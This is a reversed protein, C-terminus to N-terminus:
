KTCVVCTLEKGAVYPRCPLSGCHGEVVYLLAGNLNAHSGSVAEADKDVCVFTKSSKHNYHGTMLYGHYERTWGAPCEYTAPIMLQSSRTKVYCAVCPADHDHLNQSFPNFASVEYETGYIAASGQFGPKYNGYKPIEPLCVYNAGGGSHHYYEGGIRGPINLETNVKMHLRYDFDILCSWRVGTSLTSVLHVHQREGDYTSSEVVALDVHVRQVTNGQHVRFAV